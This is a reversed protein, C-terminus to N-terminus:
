FVGKINEPYIWCEYNDFNLNSILEKTNGSPAPCATSLYNLSNPETVKFIITMLTNANIITPLVQPRRSTYILSVKRHRCYTCFFIIIQPNKKDTLYGEFDDIVLLVNELVMSIGLVLELIDPNVINVLAAQGNKLKGLKEAIDNHHYISYDFKLFDIKAGSLFIVKKNLKQIIGTEFIKKIVTTKGCGIQGFIALLRDTLVQELRNYLKDTGM